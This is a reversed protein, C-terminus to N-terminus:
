KCFNIPVFFTIIETQKEREPVPFKTIRDGRFVNLQSNKILLDQGIEIFLSRLIPRLVPVPISEKTEMTCEEDPM